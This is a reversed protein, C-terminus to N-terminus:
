FADHRFQLTLGYTTLGSKAKPSSMNVVQCLMATYLFQTGKRKRNLQLHLHLQLDRMQRSPPRIKMSAHFLSTSQVFLEAFHTQLDDSFRRQLVVLLLDFNLM